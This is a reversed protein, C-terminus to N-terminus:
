AFCPIPQSAFGQTHTTSKLLAPFAHPARLALLGAGAHDLRPGPRFVFPAGMPALPTLIDTFLIIADVGLRKPLLSAEAALDPDRFFAELPLGARERLALYAPDTRGAQRMLWVPTRETRERRAARLFLDNKLM